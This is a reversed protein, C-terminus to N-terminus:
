VLLAELWTYVLCPAGTSFCSAACECLGHSRWSPGEWSSSPAVCWWRPRGLGWLYLLGNATKLNPSYIVLECISCKNEVKLFFFVVKKLEFKFYFCINRFQIQMWSTWFRTANSLDLSWWFSWYTNIGEWIWCTCHSFIGYEREFLFYFFFSGKNIEAFLMLEDREVAFTNM